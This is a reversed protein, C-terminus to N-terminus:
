RGPVDQVGHEQGTFLGYDQRGPSSGHALLANAPSVTTGPGCWSRVGLAWIRLTGGGEPAFSQELLRIAPHM